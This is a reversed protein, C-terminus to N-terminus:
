DKDIVNSELIVDDDKIILSDKFIFGRTVYGIEKTLKQGSLFEISVTYGSDGRIRFSFEKSENPKINKFAFKQRCVEVTGNIIEQETKNVVTFVGYNTGGYYKQQLVLYPLTLFIFSALAIFFLIKKM